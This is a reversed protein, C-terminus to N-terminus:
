AALLGGRQRVTITAAMEGRININGADVERVGTLDEGSRQESVAVKSKAMLPFKERLCWCVRVTYLLEEETGGVLVYINAYTM